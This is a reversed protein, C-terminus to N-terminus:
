GHAVAIGWIRHAGAERLVRACASLTSGTTAVDDIILINKGAILEPQTVEFVGAIMNERREKGSLEMQPHTARVRHLGPLVEIGTKGSFVDALLASQNFGRMRERRPHLPVPMAYWWDEALTSRLFASAVMDGLPLSLDRVCQYKLNGIAEEIQTERYASSALFGDLPYRARMCAFCTEGRVSVRACGLCTQQPLLVVRDQCSKCWWTGYEGCSFCEIPFVLDLFVQQAKKVIEVM